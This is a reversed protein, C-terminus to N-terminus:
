SGTQYTEIWKLMKDLDVYTLDATHEKNFTDKMYAKSMEESINAQRCRAFLLKRQKETIVPSSSVSKPADGFPIDTAVEKQRPAQLGREQSMDMEESPTPEYGALIAVYKYKNAYAKSSARTQAMSALQFLPKHKWNPEDTMCYAEASGIKLGTKADILYANAKFGKHGDIEIFTAEGTCASAHFFAGITQWHSNELFRKGNFELPKRKNSDIVKELAIAAGRADMMIEDPSKQLGIEVVEGTKKNVLAETVINESMAESTKM